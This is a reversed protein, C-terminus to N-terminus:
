HYPSWRSRCRHCRTPLTLHTYSVPGATGDGPNGRYIIPRGAELENVLADVWEESDAFRDEFSMSQPYGFYRKMAANADRVYAGSGDPGFDMEVAVACHYLLIANYEDASSASMQGWEYPAALDYNVALSGYDPHVYDKVGQAQVPYEFVSMAQAMAVAVCGVYAHGGPGEEDEPCFM